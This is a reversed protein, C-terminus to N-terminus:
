KILDLNNSNTCNYDVDFDGGLVIDFNEYSNIISSMEDLVDGYAVCNVVDDTPMYVSVVLLSIDKSTITVACIHSSTTVIPTITLALNPYWIITCGGFPRGLRSVDSEDM